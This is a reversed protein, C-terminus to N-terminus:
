INNQKSRVNCYLFLLWLFTLIFVFPVKEIDRKHNFVLFHNFVLLSQFFIRKFSCVHLLTKKIPQEKKFFHQRTARFYPCRIKVSQWWLTHRLQPFLEVQSSQLKLFSILFKLLLRVKQLVSISSVTVTIHHCQLFDEYPSSVLM